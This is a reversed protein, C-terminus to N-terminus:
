GNARQRVSSSTQIRKRWMKESVRAPNRWFRVMVSATIMVMHTDSDSNPAPRNALWCTSRIFPRQYSLISIEM